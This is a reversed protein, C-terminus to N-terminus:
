ENNFWHLDLYERIRRLAITMQNEVTKVSIQLSESIEKYTLGFNRSLRFVLVCRVPLSDIANRTLASLEKIDSKEYILNNAPYDDLDINQSLLKAYSSKLYNISQNKVSKFLYNKVSSTINISARKEWLYIFLEQVIEEAIERNEVLSYAYRCLDDYYLDFIYKIAKQPKNKFLNTIQNDSLSM